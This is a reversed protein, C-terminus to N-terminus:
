TSTAFPHFAADYGVESHTRYRMDSSLTFTISTDRVRQINCTPALVISASRLKAEPALLEEGVKEVLVPDFTAGLATASKQGRFTLSFSRLICIVFRSVNPQLGSSSPAAELETQGM